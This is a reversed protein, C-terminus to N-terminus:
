PVSPAADDRGEIWALADEKTRFVRYERPGDSTYAELMRMLGFHLDSEVVLARRPRRGSSPVRTMEAIGRLEDATLTGEIDRMEILGDFEPRYDPHSALDEFYRRSDEMNMRGWMETFFIAREPEVRFRYPM